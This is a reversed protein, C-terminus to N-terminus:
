LWYAIRRRYRQLVVLCLIWGAVTIAIVTLWSSAPPVEGLLPARMTEVFHYLPNWQAVHPRDPLASPKWIIPTVFFMLQM